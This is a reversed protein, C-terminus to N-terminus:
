GAFMMAVTSGSISLAEFFFPGYGVMETVAVFVNVKLSNYEFQLAAHPNQTGWVRVNNVKGSSYFTAEDSIIIKSLLDPDNEMSELIIHCFEFRVEKDQPYLNQVLQLKYPTFRLRKELIKCVTRQPLQLRYKPNSQWRKPGTILYSISYCAGRSQKRLSSHDLM